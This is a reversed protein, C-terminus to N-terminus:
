PIKALQYSCFIHVADYNESEALDPFTRVRYESVKRLRPFRESLDKLRSEAVIVDGGNLMHELVGSLGKEEYCVDAALLLSEPSLGCSPATKLAVKNLRANSLCALLADADTDVCTVEQAGSRAAAIGAVGSGAGFDIVERGRVAAPNDLIWRALAQGGGWCFAWYPPAEMLRACEAQQLSHEPYDDQMLYLAIEPAIPLERPAIRVGDLVFPLGCGRDADNM